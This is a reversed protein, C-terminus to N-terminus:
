AYGAGSADRGADAYVAVGLSVSIRLVGEGDSRAVRLEEVATRIREAIAHGDELDTHPLILSVEEGGYRAPSDADRSNEQLVRAVHRLVADGRPIGSPTTSWRIEDVDLMILGIPDLYRRVREIEANLGFIATTPPM